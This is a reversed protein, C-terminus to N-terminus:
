PFMTNQGTGRKVPEAAVAPFQCQDLIENIDNFIARIDQPLDMGTCRRMSEGNRRAAMVAHIEKFPLVLRRSLSRIFILGVIFVLIAMFVVGWAGAYGLQRASSDARIMAERNIRGLNVIGAVTAARAGSEGTFAKQFTADVAQLIDPEESETVNNKARALAEKFIEIQGERNAKSSLALSALMDECAQLSRENREIIITIAPAMRMFIGISALAMLLNLGVLFWAGIKVAHALRM